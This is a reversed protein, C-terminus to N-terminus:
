SQEATTALPKEVLVPVGMGVLQEVPERHLADPTAVYAADPRTERVATGIEGFARSGTANALELARAGDIDVVGAPALGSVRGEALMRALASGMSGVGVVLIRKEGVTAALM